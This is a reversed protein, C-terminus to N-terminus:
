EGWRPWFCSSIAPGHGFVSRMKLVGAGSTTSGHVLFTPAIAVKASIGLFLAIKWARWKPLQM